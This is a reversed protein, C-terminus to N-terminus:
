VDSIGGHSVVSLTSTHSNAQLWANIDPLAYLVRRGAKMFKPGIGELRWRALTSPSVHLEYALDTASRLERKTPSPSDIKM